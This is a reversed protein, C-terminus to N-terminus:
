AEPNRHVGAAPVQCRVRAASDTFPYIALEPLNTLGVVVAGAAGVPGDVAAIRELYETVVAAATVEGARVASAIEAASRGVWSTM